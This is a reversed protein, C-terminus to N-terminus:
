RAQLSLAPSRSTYLSFGVRSSIVTAAGAGVEAAERARRADDVRREAVDLELQERVENGLRDLVKDPEGLLVVVVLDDEVADDRFEHTGTGAM